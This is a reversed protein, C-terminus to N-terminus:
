GQRILLFFQKQSKGLKYAEGVFVDSAVQRMYDKMNKFVVPFLGLENREYAPWGTPVADPKGTYDLYLEGPVDADDSAERVVFYGPGTLPSSASHNYGVIQGSDLRAFRKQFHRFLPLSNRGEFFVTADNPTAKPVFQDSTVRPGGAVARYLKGVEGSALGLVQHARGNPTLADLYESIAERSAGQQLLKRLSTNATTM